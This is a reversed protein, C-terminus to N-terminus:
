LVGEDLSPEVVGDELLHTPIALPNLREKLVIGLHAVGNTRSQATTGDVAQMCEGQGVDRLTEVRELHLAVAGQLREVDAEVEGDLERTKGCTADDISEIGLQRVGLGEVLIALGGILEQHLEWRQGVHLENTRENQRGDQGSQQAKEEAIEIVDETPPHEVQPTLTLASVRQYCEVACLFSTETGNTREREDIEADEAERVGEHNPPLNM